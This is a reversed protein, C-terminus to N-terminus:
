IIIFQNNQFENVILFNNVPNKYNFDTRVYDHYLSEFIKNFTLNGDYDKKIRVNYYEKDNHTYVRLSFKLNVKEVTKM